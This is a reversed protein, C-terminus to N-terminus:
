IWLRGKLIFSTMEGESKAPPYLVLRRDQFRGKLLRFVSGLTRVRNLESMSAAACLCAQVPLEIELGTM